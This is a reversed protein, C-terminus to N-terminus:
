EETSIEDNVAIIGGKAVKLYRAHRRLMCPLKGQVLVCEDFCEKCVESLLLEADGCVLKQGQKLASLDMNKVTINAKYRAFCLGQIQQAALWNECIDDIATLQKEGGKAFRDGLLGLDVACEAKSVIQPPEGKKHFIKIKEIKGKQM